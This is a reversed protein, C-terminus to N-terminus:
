IQERGTSDTLPTRSLQRHLPHQPGHGPGLSSPQCGLSQLDGSQQGGSFGRIARPDCDEAFIVLAAM